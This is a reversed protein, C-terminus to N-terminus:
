ENLVASLPLLCFVEAFLDMIQGDYKALVEGEFGYLKNLNKSEHNGRLLHFHNPLLLKWAFLLLIVEVSFSGRDVFDGNFLYPNTESPLGNVVFINIMDYYQGHIDGCITFEDEDPISIDVLSEYTALLDRMKLLIMAVYKKHLRKQNKMFDMLDMVFEHTIEEPLHIGDYSSDVEIDEPRLNSVVREVEICAAFDAQKKAKTVIQLKERAIKDSPIMKVVTKLDRMSLALKGM